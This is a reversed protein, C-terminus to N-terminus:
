MGHLDDHPRPIKVGHLRNWCWPCGAVKVSRWLYVPGCRDCHAAHTWGPPAVGIQRWRTASLACAFSRLFPLPDAMAQVDALDEPTLTKLVDAPRLNDLGACADATLAELKLAVILQPKIARAREVLEPKLDGRLVVHDDRWECRIGAASLERIMSAAPTM